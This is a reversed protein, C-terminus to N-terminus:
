RCLLSSGMMYLYDCGDVDGWHQCGLLVWQHSSTGGECWKSTPVMIIQMAQILFPLFFFQFVEDFCLIPLCRLWLKFCNFELTRMEAVLSRQRLYLKASHVFASLVCVSCSVSVGDRQTLVSDKVYWTQQNLTQVELGPRHCVLCYPFYPKDGSAWRLCKKGFRLKYKAECSELWETLRLVCKCLLLSCMVTM